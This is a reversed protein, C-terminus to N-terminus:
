RQADEGDVVVVHGPQHRGGVDPPHLGEGSAHAAGGAEVAALDDGEDQPQAV